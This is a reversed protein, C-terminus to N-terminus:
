FWGRRKKKLKKNKNGQGKRRGPKGKKGRGGTSGGATKGAQGTASGGTKGGAIALPGGSLPSVTQSIYDYSPGSPVAAYDTPYQYSPYSGPASTM